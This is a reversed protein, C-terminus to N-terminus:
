SGPIVFTCKDVGINRGHDRYSRVDDLKLWREEWLRVRREARLCLVRGRRGCGTV